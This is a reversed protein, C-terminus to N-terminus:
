TLRTGLHARLLPCGHRFVTRLGGCLITGLRHSYKDALRCPKEDRGGEATNRRRSRGRQRHENRSACELVSLM